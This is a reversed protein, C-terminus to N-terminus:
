ICLFSYEATVWLALLLSLTMLFINIHYEVKLLNQFLSSSCRNGNRPENLQCFNRVIMAKSVNSEEHILHLM